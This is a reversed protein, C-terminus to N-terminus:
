GLFQALPEWYHAKWGAALHEGTGKPFGTHDFVIRTRDGQEVLEFKAISYIGPDWFAVRWAQVIRQNPVLEIHRGVIIAGFLVFAGGAERSIQTPSKELQISPEKAAIIQTVKNFQQTDTLAEYVRLRSAKFVPEQHIAEATHSLEAETEAWAGISSLALSGFVVAVGAMAQRRTPMGVLATSSKGNRMSNVNM